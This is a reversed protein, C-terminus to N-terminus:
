KKAASFIGQNRRVFKAMESASIEMNREQSGVDSEITCIILQLLCELRVHLPEGRPEEGWEAHGAAEDRLFDQEKLGGKALLTGAKLSLLFSGADNLGHEELDKRTPLGKLVTLRVLAELFGEFPLASEKIRGLFTQGDFVVMRSWCFCLTGERESIDVNILGSASLFAMYAPYSVHRMITGADILGNFINRISTEYKRLMADVPGTYAHCRRFHDPTPLVSGLNNSMCTLLRDLAESVDDSEKTRVYRDVSVRLLAVMFEVRSIGASSGYKDEEADTTVAATFAATNLASTAQRDRQKKSEEDELPVAEESTAQDYSFSKPAKKSAGRKGSPSGM